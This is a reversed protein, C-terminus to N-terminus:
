SYVTEYLKNVDSVAKAHNPHSPNFYPHDKNGMISGIEDQADAKSKTASAVFEPSFTDEKLSNSIGVLFKIFKPDNGLGTENVYTRMNLDKGFMDLVEVAKTVNYEFKNGWEKKLESITAEKTKAVIGTEAAVEEAMKKDYFNLLAETQHPLLNNEFAVKQIESVFESDLNSKDANFAVKYEDQSQPMGVRHYFNKWDDATANKDPVIVKDRGVMKQAHIYSKALSAVDKIASLSKDTAITPDVGKLWEPVVPADPKDLNTEPASPAQTGGLLSADGAPPADPTAENMLVHLGRLM